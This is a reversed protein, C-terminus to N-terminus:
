LRAPCRFEGLAPLGFPNERANIKISYTVDRGSLVFRARLGDPGSTVSGTDMLRMLSWPGDFRIASARGPLTPLLSLGAAGTAFADPWEIETPSGGTQRSQVIQGNVDLLAMDAGDHLSFPAFTIAVAPTSGGNPFFADRIEAARQFQMLTSASLKSSVGSGSRWRWPKVSMDVLSALNQAFFRDIEGGPAFLRTFDQISADRESGRAFPYADGTVAECLSGISGALTQNLQAISIEAVDSEFDDAAANVMRALERPLRSANARLNHVQLQLNASARGELGSASATLVLSQHLDAFIQVLADM